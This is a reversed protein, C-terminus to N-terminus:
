KLVIEIDNAQGHMDFWQQAFYPMPEPQLLSNLEESINRNNQIMRNRVNVKYEEFRQFDTYQLEGLRM